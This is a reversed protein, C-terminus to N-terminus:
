LRSFGLLWASLWGRVVGSVVSDLVISGFWNILGIGLIAM